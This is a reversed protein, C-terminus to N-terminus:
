HSLWIAKIIPTWRDIEDQVFRQAAEPSADPYPEFGSAILAERFERETMARRTAESIQEVIAKPTGAPAFLGIFNQAIMGTVGAEVATPIDPTAILRAPAAVALMRVQGTRHLELVQGTVSMMTMSIHGSIVDAVAQGTGKYPVHIIGTTGTLSKFLEGALHATSGVGGSGYSLKGPNAKAYDILEKVTRVPLSPNTLISLATVVLISIPAFSKAPDYAPPGAVTPVRIHTPVSGLLITYGDADARAVAAAGMLGGAGGENEVFVPGLLRKMKEAWLRGVVDTVPYKPQAWACDPSALSSLVLILVACRKM